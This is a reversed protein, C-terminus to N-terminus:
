EKMESMDEDNLISPQELKLGQLYTEHKGGGAKRMNQVYRARQKAPYKAKRSKLGARDPGELPALTM